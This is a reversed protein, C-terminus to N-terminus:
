KNWKNWAYEIWEYIKLLRDIDFFDQEMYWDEMNKNNKSCNYNHLMPVLNWIENEGGKDLPIIHDITRDKIKNNSSFKIGSYACRFDFFIMMEYWQEKSIGGGQEESLRRKNFTNLQIHPNEKKYQKHREKIKDKNDKYYQRHQKTISDKNNKYYQNNRKNIDDTYKNYRQNDYIKKCEICQSTLGYKGRKIKTFNIENAVLLRKCKTCIKICFPCKM